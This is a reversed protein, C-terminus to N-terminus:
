KPIERRGGLNMPRVETSFVHRKYHDGFPGVSAGALTYTKDDTYDDTKKINRALMSIRVSIVNPWQAITPASVYTDPVGDGVSNTIPDPTSPTDDIGYEVKFYEVGEVLPVINMVANTGDSGLELMKLTPLAQDTGNLCMGDPGTGVNCPAVFYVHVQYKRTDAAYFNPPDSPDNHAANAQNWTASTPYKRTSAPDTPDSGDVNRTPVDAGNAGLLFRFEQGNTQIYVAGVENTPSNDIIGTFVATDARRLVLIDSGELLNKYTGSTQLLDTGSSGLCTTPNSTPFVGASAANYGQVPLTMATGLSALDATECPDPLTAPAAPLDFFYGYFGAHRLDDYVQNMAYRGNEIMQGSKELERHTRSSNFFVTALGILLVSGIALAVMLEILTMGRQMFKPFTPM